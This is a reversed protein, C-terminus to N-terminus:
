SAQDDPRLVANAVDELRTFGLMPRDEIKPSAKRSPGRRMVRLPGAARSMRRDDSFARLDICLLDLSM